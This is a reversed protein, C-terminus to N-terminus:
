GKVWRRVRGRDAHTFNQSRYLGVGGGSLWVGFRAVQEIPVGPIFFDVAGAKTHWSDRVSGETLANTLFHRFGSTVEIARDLGYVNLWSSYAYLIDLVVPDMMAWPTMESRHLEGRKLANTLTASKNAETDKLLREFRRDRLFWSIQQHAQNDLVGDNLYNIKLEEGTGSRKIWLWRPASWFNDPAPMAQAGWVPQTVFAGLSSAGAMCGLAAKLAGRRSMLGAPDLPFGGIARPVQIQPTSNIKIVM